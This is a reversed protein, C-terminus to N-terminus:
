FSTTRRRLRRWHWSRSCRRWPRRKTWPKRRLRRCGEGIAGICSDLRTRTAAGPSAGGPPLPVEPSAPPAAAAPVAARHRSPGAEWPINGAPLGRAVRTFAGVVDDFNKGTWFRRRGKM